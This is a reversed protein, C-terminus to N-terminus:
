SCTQRQGHQRQKALSVLRPIDTYLIEIEKGASRLTLLIDGEILKAMCFLRNDDTRVEIHQLNEGMTRVGLRSYEGYFCGRSPISNKCNILVNYWAPTLYLTLYSLSFASYIPKKYNADFFYWVFLSLFMLRCNEFPVRVRSIRRWAFSSKCVWPTKTGDRNCRM